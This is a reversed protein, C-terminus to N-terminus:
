PRLNSARLLTSRAVSWRRLSEPVNSARTPLATDGIARRETAIRSGAQSAQGIRQDLLARIQPTDHQPAKLLELLSPQGPENDTLWHDMSVGPFADNWTKALLVLQDLRNRSDTSQPESQGKIWQYITPRSVGLVDALASTSLTFTERLAELKQPITLPTAAPQCIAPPVEALMQTDIIQGPSASSSSVLGGLVGAFLARGSGRRPISTTTIMGFLSQFPDLPPSSPQQWDGALKLDFPQAITIM